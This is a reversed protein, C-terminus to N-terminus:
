GPRYSLLEERDPSDTHLSMVPGVGRAYFKLEQVRPETPVLDRTMLVDDYFGAPTLVMEEGVTVIAGEDEAEGELYEQRYALGPVPDAPMVVGPQAGDVGAEFSGETSVPKGDEYEATEEGLYWINGEDDEAYWDDTVEIPEDAVTVIDRVVRAEVGNAIQKTQPTVTVVIREGGTGRYVWRAGVAMPWWENDIETTFEGPDLEVPESGQPLADAGTMTSEGGEGACGALVAVAIVTALTTTRISRM